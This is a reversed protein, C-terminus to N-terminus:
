YTLANHFTNINVFYTIIFNFLILEEWRRVFVDAIFLSVKSSKKNCQIQKYKFM